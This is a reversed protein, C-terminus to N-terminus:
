GGKYYDLIYVRLASSLNGSRTDDVHSVLANVSMNKSAAIDRLAQWFAPELTISTPHGSITVSHKELASDAM